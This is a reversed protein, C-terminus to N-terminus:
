DWAWRGPRAQVPIDREDMSGAGLGLLPRELAAKLEPLRQYLIDGPCSTDGRDRHAALAKVPIKYDGLVRRSLAVFAELAAASPHNSVPPHFNGMFSIGVNGDNDNLVHAGLVGEPRGEFVHGDPSIVFHYGVDIWGRGHIHYDQVFRMERVSEAFDAPLRGATHHMTLKVPSHRSYPRTAAAAGWEARRVLAYVGSSIAVPPGPPAATQAGPGSGAIFLEIGYIELVHGSSVGGDLARLRIPERSARAFRLRGWFRGDDFRRIELPRWEGDPGAADPRAAELRVGADPMVGQVLMADYPEAPADSLGTDFIVRGPAPVIDRSFAAAQGRYFLTEGVDGARAPAAPLAFLLLALLGRM